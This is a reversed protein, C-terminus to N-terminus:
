STRPKAFNSRAAQSCMFATPISSAPAHAPFFLSHDIGEHIMTVPKDTIARLVGAAWESACLVSDYPGLAAASQIRTSEFICRAVNRIGGTDARTVSPVVGNGFPDVVLVGQERLDVEGATLAALFENAADAAPRMAAYRLPSTGPFARLELPIGMLPQIDPGAAWHEFLNLGLVGWGSLSGAQWRLMVRQM